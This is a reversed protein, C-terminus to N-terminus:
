RLFDSSCALLGQAWFHISIKIIRIKDIAQTIPKLIALLLCVHYQSTEANGKYQYPLALMWSKEEEQETFRLYGAPPGGEKGWVLL